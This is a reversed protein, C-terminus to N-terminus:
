YKLCFSLVLINVVQVSMESIVEDEPLLQCCKLEDISDGGETGQLALQYILDVIM